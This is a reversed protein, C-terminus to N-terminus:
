GAGDPVRPQMRPPLSALVNQALKRQVQPPSPRIIADTGIRPLTTVPTSLRQLRQIGINGKLFLADNGRWDGPPSKPTLHKRTDTSRARQCAMCVRAKDSLKKQSLNFLGVFKRRECRSCWVTLDEKAKM